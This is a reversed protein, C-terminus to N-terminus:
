ITHKSHMLLMYRCLGQLFAHLYDRCHLLEDCM